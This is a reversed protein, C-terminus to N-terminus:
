EVIIMPDSNGKAKKGSQLMFVTFPYLGAANIATKSKKPKNKGIAEGYPDAPDFAGVPAAWVIGEDTHNVINLEDPKNANGPDKLRLTIVPPYVRFEGDSDKYVHVNVDAM